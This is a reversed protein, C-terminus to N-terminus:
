GLSVEATKHISVARSRLKRVSRTGAHPINLMAFHRIVSIRLPTFFILRVLLNRLNRLLPARITGIGMFVRSRSAASHFSRKRFRTYTRLLKEAGASNNLLQDLVASLLRADGFGTNMGHGGIPPMTHAADGCFIVRGQAYIRNESREPRFGSTWLADRHDLRFGTREALIEEFGMPGKSRTGTQVIWRRIGGPVPFSEVSGGKTFCLVAAEGLGSRDCYDTMQFTVGYPRRKHRIELLQRVTSSSGDCACLFSGKFESRDGTSHHIAGISVEEGRDKVRDVEWGLLLLVHPYRSLSEALIEETRSQPISVIFPLPAIEGGIEGRVLLGQDTRIEARTIKIGEELFRDSLDLNALIELSTPTVGIARSTAARSVRKELVLTSIGAVGLYNALLLGM